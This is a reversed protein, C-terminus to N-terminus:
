WYNSPKELYEDKGAKLGEITKRVYVDPLIGVGHHQSGDHKLVKSGTWRITIDGNLSFSTAAGNTGATPEGVLLGLDYHEIFSM